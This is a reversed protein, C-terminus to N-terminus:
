KLVHLEVPKLSYDTFSENIKNISSLVNTVRDFTLNPLTITLSRTSAGDIGYNDIFAEEANFMTANITLNATGAGINFSNITIRVNKGWWDGYYTTDGNDNVSYLFSTEYYYLYKYDGLRGNEDTNLNTTGITPYFQAFIFPYQSSTTSKISGYLVGMQSYFHMSPYISSWTNSGFSVSPNNSGGSQSFYATYSVNGNVKISRPNQTNNDNWKTFHYGSRPVATLTVTSGAPYTGSGTVYGYNNNNSTATVTYNQTNGSGPNALTNVFNKGAQQMKSFDSGLSTTCDLVLVILASNKDETVTSSSAPNFESERDWNGTTTKKWLMIKNLDSQTVSSGDSYKLDNFQFQYYAGQSSSSSLTTPGQAFGHYKINTLTRSSSSRSYTAEIYRNSATASTANDFTFRLVQGEDYGGPVNVGLNVSVSVSYLNAAIENFRQMAENMDSVQFVNNDSSALKKLTEVFVANDTVDNGKLGITYASVNLGHIKENVIKNHLAERYASTSGYNEPDYESSATSVNDLGDTFTVLAINKLKPPASFEKMKKLAMYDAYYLGTGNGPQLGTIFQTFSYATMNNLLSIPKIYLESNFGIIGLYIGETNNSTTPDKEKEKECGCFLVMSLFMMMIFFNVKKQM